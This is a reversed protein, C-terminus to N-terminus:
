LCTRANFIYIIHPKNEYNVTHIDFKPIHGLMMNCQNEALDKKPTEKNWHNTTYYGCLDVSRCNRFSHSCGAIAAIPFAGKHHRM